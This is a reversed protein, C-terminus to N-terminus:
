KGDSKPSPIARKKYNRRIFWAYGQPNQRLTAWAYEQLEAMEALRQEPTKAWALKRRYRDRRAFQEAMDEMAAPNYM